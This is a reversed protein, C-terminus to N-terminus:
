WIFMLKIWYVHGFGSVITHKDNLHSLPLNPHEDWTALAHLGRCMVHAYKDLSKAKCACEPKMLPTTSSKSQWSM